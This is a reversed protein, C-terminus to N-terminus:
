KEELRYNKDELEYTAGQSIIRDLLVTATVSDSAKTIKTSLENPAYNSSIYIPKDNDVRGKIIPSWVTFVIDETFREGGFDDIFLVDVEQYLRLAEERTEFNWINQTINNALDFIVSKNQKNLENATFGMIYTKGRGANGYIYGGKGKLFQTLVRERKQSKFINEFNILPIYSKHWGRSKPCRIYSLEYKKGFDDYIIFPIFRNECLKKKSEYCQKCLEIESEYLLRDNISLHEKLQENELIQKLNM